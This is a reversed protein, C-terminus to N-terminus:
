GLEKLRQDKAYADLAKQAEMASGYIVRGGHGCPYFKKEKASTRYGVGFSQRDVQFVQLVAAPMPRLAECYYKKGM